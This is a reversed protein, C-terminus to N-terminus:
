RPVGMWVRMMSNRLVTSDRDLSVFIQKLLRPYPHLTQSLFPFSKQNSNDPTEFFRPNSFYHLYDKRYIYVGRIAFTKHNTLTIPRIFVITM